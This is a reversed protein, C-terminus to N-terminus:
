AVVEGLVEDDIIVEYCDNCEVSYNVVEGNSDTYRAVVVSHGYHEGIRSM